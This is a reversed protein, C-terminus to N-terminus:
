RVHVSGDDCHYVKLEFEEQRPSARRRERDYSGSIRCHEARFQEWARAEQRQSLVIVLAAWVAILMFLAFFMLMMTDPDRM